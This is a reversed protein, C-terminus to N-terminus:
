KFVAVQTKATMTHLGTLWIESTGHDVRKIRDFSANKIAFGGNKISYVVLLHLVEVKAHFTANQKTKKM